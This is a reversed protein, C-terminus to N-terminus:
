SKRSAVGLRLVTEVIERDSSTRTFYVVTWGAITLLRDRRFDADFASRTRHTDWGHYEIGLRVDPYAADLFFDEGDVTVPHQPVPAPLGARHLATLVRIEPQSDTLESGPAREKVLRLLAAHRRGPAPALEGLMRRLSGLSVEGAVLGQDLARALQGFGLRAANDVLTREFNTVPIGDITTLHEAPLLVRHISTGAVVPHREAPVSVHLHTPRNPHAPPVRHVALASRHSAAAEPGAALIAAVLLHEWPTPVGPLRWVGPHVPELRRSRGARHLQQRTWGVSRAQRTTVLGRQATTFEHLADLRAAVRPAVSM